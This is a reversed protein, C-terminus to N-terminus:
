RKSRLRKLFSVFREVISPGPDLQLDLSRVWVRGTERSPPQSTWAHPALVGFKRSRFGVRCSEWEDKNYLRDLVVPDTTLPTLRYSYWFEGMRYRPETLEAVREGNLELYWGAGIASDPDVIPMGWQISERDM